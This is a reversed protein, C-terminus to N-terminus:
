PTLLFAEIAERQDMADKFGADILEQCFSDQFMLYSIFRRSNGEHLGLLKLARRFGRPMENFHKLALDSVDISPTVIHYEVPKLRGTRNDPILELTENIRDLREVDPYLGNLFLSDMIYGGIQGLTPKGEGTSKQTRSTDAIRLGIVFVKNAGLHIAPSLPATQRMSGDGFYEDGLQVAPFVVPIASSAMLHDIGIKERRGGRHFRDWEEISEHGDFFNISQGHTYSCATISYAHLDGTQIAKSIRDFHINESLLSRLPANDLLSEPGRGGKLRINSWFWNLMRKSLSAGDSKFVHWPKFNQWVQLIKDVGSHFDAANSALAAANISGASTGCIIPFPNESSEPVIEAVAKLVGVQYAARAGGGGLLLATKSRTRNTAM